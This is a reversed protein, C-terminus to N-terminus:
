FNFYVFEQYRTISLTCITMIIALIVTYFINNKKVYIKSLEFSNKSFFMLYICALFLILKIQLPNAQVSTDIFVDPQRFYFAFDKIKFIIDSNHNIIFMSKLLAISDGLRTQSVFPTTILVAFFTLCSAYFKNFTIKLKAWM